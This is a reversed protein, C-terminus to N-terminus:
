RAELLALAAFATAAEQMFRVPASDAAYRRNMSDAAWYGSQRDQQSRLWDLARVLGRHSRAVGAKQLLFAVFGTAYSNSGTSPPAEPHPSWPGLSELTWGGDPQQKGLIEDVMPRRLAEPLAGPLRSSAWLLVLRNHLPQAQRERQLYETLAQVRERIEPQDRYEAPASGVALAALAAGYFASEPTEWPDLHQNIWAWSGRAKGERIQLAWLRDLAPGLEPTRAASGPDELALFLASVIAEVSSKPLASPTKALEKPDKKAVRARLGDLLGTEYSTPPSEGLARRLAPRVLLYTLGTHCSLCPGEPTAARPWAFWEKQRADLFQAALRPNWDEGFGALAALATLLALRPFM